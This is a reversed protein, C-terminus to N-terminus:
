WADDMIQTTTDTGDFHFLWQTNADNVFKAAPVTYTANARNYRAINSLRYENFYSEPAQVGLRNNIGGSTVIGDTGNGITGIRNGDFWFTLYLGTDMTVAAHHWVNLSVATTTTNLTTGGFRATAWMTNGNGVRISIETSVESQDYLLNVGTIYSAGTTRYWFEVTGSGGTEGFLAHASNRSELWGAQAGPMYLSKTGFKSQASSIVATGTVTTSQQPRKLTQTTLRRAGFM